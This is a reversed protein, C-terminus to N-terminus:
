ERVIDSGTEVKRSGSVEASSTEQHIEVWSGIDAKNEGWEVFVRTCHEDTTRGIM